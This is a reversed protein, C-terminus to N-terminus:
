LINCSRVKGDTKEKCYAEADAIKRCDKKKVLKYCKESHHLYEWGQPCPAPDSIYSNSSSVYTIRLSGFIESDCLLGRSPGEGPQFHKSASDSM